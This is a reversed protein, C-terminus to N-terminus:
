IGHAERLKELRSPKTSGRRARALARLLREANRPSSLLHATEQLSEFEDFALLVVDQGKRRRIRIPERDAVTRDCFDKLRARLQSFTTEPMIQGGGRTCCLPVIFRLPKGSRIQGGPRRARGAGRRE